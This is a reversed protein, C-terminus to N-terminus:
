SRPQRDSDGFRKFAGWADAPVATKARALWAAREVQSLSNWWVIEATEDQTPDRESKMDEISAYARGGVLVAVSDRRSM